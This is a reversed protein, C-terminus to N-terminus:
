KTYIAFQGGKVTLMEFADLTLVTTTPRRSISFGATGVLNKLAKLPKACRRKDAVGAKKLAETLLLCRTTPTAALPAPM